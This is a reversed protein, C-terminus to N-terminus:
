ISVSTLSIGVLRAVNLRQKELVVINFTESCYNAQKMRQLNSAVKYIVRHAEAIHIFFRDLELMRMHWPFDRYSSHDLVQAELIELKAQWEIPKLVEDHPAFKVPEKWRQSWKPNPNLM